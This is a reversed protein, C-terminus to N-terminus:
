VNIDLLREVHQGLPPVPRSMKIIEQRLPPWHVSM